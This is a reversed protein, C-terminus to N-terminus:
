VYRGEEDDRGVDTPLIGENIKVIIDNKILGVGHISHIISSAANKQQDSKVTGSLTINGNAVTVTIDSSDLTKSNELLIKVVNELEDDSYIHGSPELFEEEHYSMAEEVDSENTIHGQLTHRNINDDVLESWQDNVFDRRDWRGQDTHFISKDQKNSAM